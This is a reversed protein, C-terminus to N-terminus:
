RTSIDAAGHALAVPSSPRGGVFDTAVTKGEIHTILEYIYTGKVEQDPKPFAHLSGRYLRELQALSGRAFALRGNALKFQPGAATIADVAKPRLQTFDVLFLTELTPQAGIREPWLWAWLAEIRFRPALARAPAATDAGAPRRGALNGPM